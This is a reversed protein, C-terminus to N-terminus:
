RYEAGRTQHINDDNGGCPVELSLVDWHPPRIHATKPVHPQVSFVDRKPGEVRWKGEVRWQLPARYVLAMQTVGLSGAGGNLSLFMRSGYIHVCVCVCM